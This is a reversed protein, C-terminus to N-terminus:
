KAIDWAGPTGPNDSRHAAASGLEDRTTMAGWTLEFYVSSRCPTVKRPRLGDMDVNGFPLSSCFPRPLSLKRFGSSLRRQENRAAPWTEELGTGLGGLPIPAMGGLSILM